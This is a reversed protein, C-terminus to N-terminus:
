HHFVAPSSFPRNADVVFMILQRLETSGCSSVQVPVEAEAGATARGVPIRLVGGSTHLCGEGALVYFAETGPHTHVTTISGPAGTAQNIRLLYETARVPPLPGVEAAHTGGSSVMGKPGLRFLWASGFAEAALAWPGTAAAQAQVLTPFTEIRWYLRPRGVPLSTVKKETLAKVVLSGPVITQQAVATTSLLFAGALLVAAALVLRRGM